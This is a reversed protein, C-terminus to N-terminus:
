DWSKNLYVFLFSLGLSCRAVPFHLHIKSAGTFCENDYVLFILVLAGSFSRHFGFKELSRLAVCM